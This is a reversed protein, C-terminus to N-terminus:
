YTPRDIRADPPMPIGRDLDFRVAPPTDPPATPRPADIARGEPDLLPPADLLALDTAESPGEDPFEPQLPADALSSSPAPPPLPASAAEMRAASEERVREALPLGVFLTLSAAVALAGVPAGLSWPRSAAGRRPSASEAAIRAQLAPWLSPARPDVPSESAAASLADMARALGDRRARCPDCRDLHAQVAHRAEGADGPAPDDGAAVLPLRDRVWDCAREDPTRRM